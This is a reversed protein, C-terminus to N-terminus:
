RGSPRCASPLVCAKGNSRPRGPRIRTPRIGLTRCALAHARSVDDSGNDSMVREVRIAHEAFPRLGRRLCGVAQRANEGTGQLVEADALRSHDAVIVHVFEYRTIQRSPCGNRVKFQSRKHGTMRDGAGRESIRGRRKVDVHVLQGPRARQSRDPPEAPGRRSRKALGIRKRWGSVTSLAIELLEGIEAATM